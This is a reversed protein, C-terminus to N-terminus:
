RYSIKLFIFESNTEQPETDSGIEKLIDTMVSRYEKSVSISIEEDTRSLLEFSGEAAQEIKTLAVDVNSVSIYASAPRVAQSTEKSEAEEYSHIINSSSCGETLDGRPTASAGSSPAKVRGDRATPALITMQADDATDESEANESTSEDPAVDGSGTDAMIGAADNPVEAPAAELVAMSTNDYAASNQGAGYFQYYAGYAIIAVAAAAAVIAAPRKYFLRQQRSTASGSKDSAAIKEMLETHFGAPLPAGSLSRVADKTKSLEALMDACSQCIAIHAALQDKEPASLENDLYANINKQFEPCTL